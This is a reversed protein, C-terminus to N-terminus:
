SLQSQTIGAHWDDTPIRSQGRGLETAMHMNEEGLRWNERVLQQVRKRLKKYELLGFKRAEADELAVDRARRASRPLVKQRLSQFWSSEVVKPLLPGGLIAGVIAGVIGPIFVNVMEDASSYDFLMRFEHINATTERKRKEVKEKGGEKGKGSRTGYHEDTLVELVEGFTMPQVRRIKGDQSTRLRIECPPQTLYMKMWSPVVVRGAEAGSFPPADYQAFRVDVLFKGRDEVIKPPDQVDFERGRFVYPRHNQMPHLNLLRNIQPLEDSGKTTNKESPPAMFLVKELAVSGAMTAQFFKNVRQCKLLELAPLHLLIAELLEPTGLVQHVSYIQLKASQLPKLNNESFGPVILPPLPTLKYDVLAELKTLRARLAELEPATVPRNPKYWREYDTEDYDLGQHDRDDYDFM